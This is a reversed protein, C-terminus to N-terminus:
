LRGQLIETGHLGVRVLGLHITASAQSCRAVHHCWLWEQGERRRQNFASVPQSCALKRNGSNAGRPCLPLPLASRLGLGMPIFRGQPLLGAGTSKGQTM